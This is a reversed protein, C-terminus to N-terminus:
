PADARRLYYDLRKRYSEAYSELPWQVPCGNLPLTAFVCRQGFAPGRYHSVFQHERALYEGPGSQAFLIRKCYWQQRRTNGSDTSRRSLSESITM